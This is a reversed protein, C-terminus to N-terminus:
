SHLLLHSNRVRICKFPIIVYLFFFFYVFSFGTACIYHTSVHVHVCGLLYHLM